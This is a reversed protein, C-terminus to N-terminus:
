HVVTRFIVIEIVKCSAVKTIGRAHVILVSSSIPPPPPPPASVIPMFTQLPVHVCHGPAEPLLLAM